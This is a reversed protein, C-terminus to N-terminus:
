FACEGTATFTSSVVSSAPVAAGQQNQTQVAAPPHLPAGIPVVDPRGENDTLERDSVATGGPGVYIVTDCSQESSSYDDAEGALRLVRLPASGPAAPGPAAPGDVGRQHFPRLHTPRRM